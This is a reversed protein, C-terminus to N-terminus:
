VRAPLATQHAQRIRLSGAEGVAQPRDSDTTAAPIGNLRGIEAPYATLYAQQQDVTLGQWWEKVTWASKGDPIKAKDAGLLTANDRADQAANLVESPSMVGSPPHIYRALATAYQEDLRTAEALVAGIRDAMAQAAENNRRGATAAEREDASEAATLYAPDVSGDDRVRMGAAQADQEIQQLQRQLGTFRSAATDVLVGVARAQGALLGFGEDVGDLHTCAATAADGEWGSTRIPGVLDSVANQELTMLRTSLTRWAVATAEVDSLRAARLDDLAVM